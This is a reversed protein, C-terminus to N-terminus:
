EPVEALEARRAALLVDVLRHPDALAAEIAALVEVRDALRRRADTVPRDV